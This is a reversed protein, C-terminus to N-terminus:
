ANRRRRYAVVGGLGAVMLAVTTPEPVLPNPTSAPGDFTAFQNPGVGAAFTSGVGWNVTGSPPLFQGTGPNFNVAGDFAIIYFSQGQLADDLTSVEYFEGPGQPNFPMQDVDGITAVASGGGFLTVVADGGQLFGNADLGPPGGAAQVLYVPNGEPMPAGVSDGVLTTSGNYPDVYWTLTWQGFAMSAVLVACLVTGGRVISRLRM